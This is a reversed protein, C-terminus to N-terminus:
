FNSCGKAVCHVLHNQVTYHGLNKICCAQTILLNFVRPLLKIPLLEVPLALNWIDIGLVGLKLSHTVRRTMLM